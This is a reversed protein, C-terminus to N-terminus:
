QSTYLEDNMFDVINYFYKHVSILAQHKQYFERERAARVLLERLNNYRAKKMPVSQIFENHVSLLATLDHIKKNKLRKRRHDTSINPVKAVFNTIFHDPQFAKQNKRVIDMLLPNNHAASNRINKVYKLVRNLVSYDKSRGIRLYYFEVFRVFQGFSLIEFLVWVPIDQNYTNYLGFNYHTDKKMPKLIDNINYGSEHLFDNVISYGDEKTDNTIDNHLKTKITHEIDLSMQIVIYRLRMDITSLDKLIAFDLNIYKGYKDKDFNKRYSTIKFFYNSDQLIQKAENENILELKINKETFHEIMEDFSLKKRHKTKTSEM